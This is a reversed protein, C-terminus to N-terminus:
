YRFAKSSHCALFPLRSIGITERNRRPANHVGLDCLRADPVVRVGAERLVRRLAIEM